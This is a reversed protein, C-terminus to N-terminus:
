NGSSHGRANECVFIIMAIAKPPNITPTKTNRIFTGKRKYAINRYPSTLRCNFEESPNTPLQNPASAGSISIIPKKQAALMGLKM